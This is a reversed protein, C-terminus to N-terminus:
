GIRDGYANYSAALKILLARRELTSLAALERHIRELMTQVPAHISPGLALPNLYFPTVDTM